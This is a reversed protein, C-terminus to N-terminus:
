SKFDSKGCSCCIQLTAQASSCAPTWWRHRDEKHAPRCKTDANSKDHVESMTFTESINAASRSRTKSIRLVIKVLLEFPRTIHQFTSILGVPPQSNITTLPHARDKCWWIKSIRCSFLISSLSALLEPLNLIKSDSNLVCVLHFPISISASIGIRRDHLCWKTSRQDFQSSFTNM